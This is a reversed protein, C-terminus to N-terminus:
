TGFQALWQWLTAFELVAAASTGEVEHWRTKGGHNAVYNVLLTADAHEPDLAGIVYCLGPPSEILKPVSHTVADFSASPFGGLLVAAAWAGSAIEFGAEFVLGTSAGRGCLYSRSPETAYLEAFAGLIGPLDQVLQAQSQATAPEDTWNVSVLNFQFADATKRWRQVNALCTEGLDHLAVLTPLKASSDTKAPVYLYCVHGALTAWQEVASTMSGAGGAGGSGAENPGSDGADPSYSDAGTCGSCLLFAQGAVMAVISAAVSKVFQGRTLDRPVVMREAMQALAAPTSARVLEVEAAELEIGKELAAALPDARLRERYGHDLAALTLVRELGIPLESVEVARHMPRGGVITVGERPKSKAQTM